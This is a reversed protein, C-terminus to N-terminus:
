KWMTRANHKENENEFSFNRFIESFNRLFNRENRKAKKRRQDIELNGGGEDDDDDNNGEMFTEWFFDGDFDGNDRGDDDYHDNNNDNREREGERHNTPWWFCSSSFFLNETQNKKRFQIEQGFWNNM